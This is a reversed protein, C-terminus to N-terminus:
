KEFYLDLGDAIGVAANTKFADTAMLRDDAANSMYGMEILTVPVKSWNIGTMTDTEWIPDKKMGTKECYKELIAESLKRSDAYLDANFSNKPTMCITEAGNVSSSGSGNAHIRLFADAAYANAIQARQANSLSVNNTERIMVVTYGRAILENRLKLAVALNLKYEPTGTVVGQTGNSLMTKMEDSGPGLPEKGNMATNQHGADIVITEKTGKYYIGGKEAMLSVDAEPRIDTFDDASIYYKGGIAAVFCVNENKELLVVSIGADIEDAATELNEDAYLTTKQLIWGITASSDTPAAEADATTVPVTTVAATTVSTIVASTPETRETKPKATATKVDTSEVTTIPNTIPKNEDTIIKESSTVADGDTNLTADSTIPAATSIPADSTVTQPKETVDSILTININEHTECAAFLCLIVVASSAALQYLLIKKTSM